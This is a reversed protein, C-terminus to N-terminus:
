GVTPGTEDLTLIGHLLRLLNDHVDLVLTKQLPKELDDLLKKM